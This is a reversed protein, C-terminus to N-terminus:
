ALLDWGSPDGGDLGLAKALNDIGPKKKDANDKDEVIWFFQQSVLRALAARDKKQAIAAIQKRFAEFSPDKVPQPLRIAVPKYPKPPAPQQQGAQPQAVAPALASTGALLLAAMAASILPNRM